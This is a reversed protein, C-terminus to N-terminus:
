RLVAEVEAPSVNSGGRIIMTSVRGVVHVYGDGDMPRPRGDPVLRGADPGARHPRSRALLRGPPGPRPDVGRRDAGPAVDRGEPDVLRLAAEGAVVRGAGGPGPRPDVSPTTPSSRSSEVRRVCRAGPM